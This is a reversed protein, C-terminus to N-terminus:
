RFGAKNMCAFTAKFKMGDIHQTSFLNFILDRNSKKHIKPWLICL